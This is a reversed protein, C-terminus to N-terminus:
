YEGPTLWIFMTNEDSVEYTVINGNKYIVEGGDHKFGYLTEDAGGDLLDDTLSWLSDGMEGGCFFIFTTLIAEMYNDEASSPDYEMKWTALDIGVKDGELLLTWDSPRVAAYDKAKFISLGKGYKTELIGNLININENLTKSSHYVFEINSITENKTRELDNSEKNETSLINKTDSLKSRNDKGCGLTHFLLVLLFLGVLSRTHIKM